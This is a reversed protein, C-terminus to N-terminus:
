VREYISLCATDRPKRALNRSERNFYRWAFWLFVSVYTHKYATAQLPNFQQVM